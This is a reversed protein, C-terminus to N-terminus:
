KSSDGTPNLHGKAHLLARMLTSGLREAEAEPIGKLEEEGAGMLMLLYLPVELKQAIGEMVELSPTRKGAEILSVYSADLELMRALEKQPIGRATRITKIARGYNMLFGERKERKL